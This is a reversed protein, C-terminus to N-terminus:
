VGDKWKALESEQATPASRWLRWTKNYLSIPAAVAQAYRKKHSSEMSDLLIMVHGDRYMAAWFNNEPKGKFEVYYVRTSLARYIDIPWNGKRM